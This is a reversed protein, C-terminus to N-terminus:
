SASETAAIDAAEADSSVHRSDDRPSIDSRKCFSGDTLPERPIATM